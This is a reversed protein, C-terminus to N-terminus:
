NPNTESEERRGWWIGAPIVRAQGPVEKSSWVFINCFIGETTPLVERRFMPGEILDLLELTVNDVIFIEGHIRDRPDNTRYVMPFAGLDFLQFGVMKGPGVFKSGRLFDHLLGGRKLTGYTFLRSGQSFDTEELSEESIEQAKQAIM